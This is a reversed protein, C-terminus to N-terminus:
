KKSYDIFCVDLNVDGNIGDITGKQSFQWMAFQYPYDPVDACQSLWIDYNQLLTLDVKRLLWYKDGMIMPTYGAESIKKCFSLAIGTLQTKTLTDIRTTDNAMKDMHMVVPYQIEFDGLNDIIIQAEEEAEEASIAYSHFVIGVDLGAEIAKQINQYYNDDYSIQGSEYGRSAVEVMCYDVGSKKVKEFDITGNDDSIDVGMFSAKQGNEYYRMISDQLVLGTPDYNNKPLASNIMIWNTTGDPYTVETKTGGESLDEEKAKQEEEELLAKANEAYRESKTLKDKDKSANEDKTDEKYMDWFDLDKSTLDSKGIELEDENETTALEEDTVTQTGAVEQVRAPKKYNNALVICVVVVFFTVGAIAMYVIPLGTHTEKDNDYEDSLRM